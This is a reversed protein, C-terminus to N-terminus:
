KLAKSINSRMREQLLEYQEIEEESLGAYKIQEYSNRADLIDALVDEANKGFSLDLRKLDEKKEQKEKSKAVKKEAKEKKDPKEAEVKLDPVVLIEKNVM